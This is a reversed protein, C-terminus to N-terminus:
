NFICEHTSFNEKYLSLSNKIFFSKANLLCFVDPKENVSIFLHSTELKKLHFM